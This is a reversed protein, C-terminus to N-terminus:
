VLGPLGSIVISYQINFISYKNFDSREIKEIILLIEQIKM